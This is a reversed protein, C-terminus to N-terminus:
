LNGCQQTENTGLPEEECFVCLNPIKKWTQEFSSNFLCHLHLDTSFEDFEYLTITIYNRMGYNIVNSARHATFGSTALPNGNCHDLTRRNSWRYNGECLTPKINIKMNAQVLQKVFLLTALSNSNWSAYAFYSSHIMQWDSMGVHNLMLIIADCNYQFDLRVYWIFCCRNPRRSLCIM